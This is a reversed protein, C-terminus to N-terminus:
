RDSLGGTNGFYYLRAHRLDQVVFTDVLHTRNGFRVQAQPAFQYDRHFHRRVQGPALLYSRWPGAGWRVEYHIHVRSANLLAFAKYYTAPTPDSTVVTQAQAPRGMGLLGLLGLLAVFRILAKKM